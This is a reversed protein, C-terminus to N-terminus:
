YIDVKNTLELKKKVRIHIITNNNNIQTKGVSYICDIFVTEYHNDCDNAYLWQWSISTNERISWFSINELPCLLWPIM